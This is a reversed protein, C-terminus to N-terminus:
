FVMVVVNPIWHFGVNMEMAHGHSHEHVGVDFRAKVLDGLNFVLLQPIDM